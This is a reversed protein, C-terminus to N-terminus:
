RVTTRIPASNAKTMPMSRMGLARRSDTGAPRCSTSWIASNSIELANGFQQGITHQRGLRLEGYEEHGLGVWAAYNFLKGDEELKGSSPDFGSELQFRSRWGGGLDEAGQLGWLSDTLGGNLLGSHSGQGSVHTVAVGADVVGYLQVGLGDDDAAFAALPQGVCCALAVRCFAHKMNKEQCAAPTVGV